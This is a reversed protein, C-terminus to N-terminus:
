QLDVDILRTFERELFTAIYDQNQTAVKEFVQSVSPGYLLYLGGGLSAWYRKKFKSLEDPKLRIALGLNYITETKRAGQPLKILFARPMKVARGPTVEVSVGSKGTTKSKAFRALSTPRHKASIVGQLKEPDVSMSLKGNAGVLYRASFNVERRMQDSSVTRAHQTTRSIAARAKKIIMSPLNAVDDLNDLGDVIVAFESSM